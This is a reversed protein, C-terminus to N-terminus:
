FCRFIARASADCLAVAAAEIPGGSFAASFRDDASQGLAFRMAEIPGGSFAASFVDAAAFAMDFDSSFETLALQVDRPVIHYISPM